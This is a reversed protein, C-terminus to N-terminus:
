LFVQAYEALLGATIAGGAYWFGNGFWWWCSESSRLEARAVILSLTVISGGVSLVYYSLTMGGVIGYVTLLGSMDLLLVWTKDRYLVAISKIEAKQDDQLDQHAYIGLTIDYIMTWLICALFLFVAAFDVAPASNQHGFPDYTFLEVDMALSGIVIGWAVCFGLVAQPYNTHCKAWPHYMWGVISPLAYISTERISYGPAVYPLLALAGITQSFTYLLAVSPSVAGRPIPRNKTREVQADLPADILDNWIHIANSVFLSGAFTIAAARATEELPAQRAIAGHLVGFVHPLYILFFGAPPSLRAVQIYPLWPTPLYGVCGTNSNGGYQAALTTNLDM